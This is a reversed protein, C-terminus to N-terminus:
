ARARGPKTVKAEASRDSLLQEVIATITDVKAEVARLRDATPDEPEAAAKLENYCSQLRCITDREESIFRGFLEGTGADISHDAFFNDFIDPGDEITEFYSPFGLKEMKELDTLETSAAIAMQNVFNPDDRRELVFGLEDVRKAFAMGHDGERAAVTRLVRRVDDSPTVEAWASFYDHARSEALAIGNLRQLYSPKEPVGTSRGRAADTELVKACTALTPLHWPRAYWTISGSQLRM